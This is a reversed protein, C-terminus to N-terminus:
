NRTTTERTAHITSVNDHVEISVFTDHRLVVSLLIFKSDNSLYQHLSANV